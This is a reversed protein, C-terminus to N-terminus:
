SDLIRGPALINNPDLTRKLLKMLELEQKTRSLGLYPKKELGIGHEASVSGQLKQLPKYVIQSIAKGIEPEDSRPAIFFHMNNDGVHALSVCLAEPWRKMVNSKVSASYDQMDGIPLSVDYLFYPTEALLPEFNERVKWLEDRERESQSIVADQVLDLEMAEMLIRQFATADYDEDTGQTEAIVYCPYDGSFPPRNGGPGTVARYYDQGMFEFATLVGGLHRRLHRLLAVVNVFSDLALMATNVTLPAEELKVIVKTVVGLTGESGIFLQKLDYGTNNKIMRNMSSIVTGDALVAELGLTINRMMGYRIVNLGGANSAVNGGVTASGRGGYDLPYYLGKDAVAERVSELLCGAEVTVTSNMVDIDLIRNMRNMCIVVEESSPHQGEVGGTNGGIVVVAQARGNCYALIESIEKTNGPYLVATAQMPAPEWFSTAREAIAAGTTIHKEGVLNTLEQILTDM